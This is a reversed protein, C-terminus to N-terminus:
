EYDEHIDQHITVDMNEDILKIQEELEHAIDHSERLNLKGDLEIHFEIFNTHGCTRSRFDHYGLAESHNKIVKKVKNKIKEDIERDLLIDLASCLLERANQCLFIAILIGFISDIYTINTYKTIILSIIVGTTTFIDGTYNVSDARIALSNTKRVVYKQFTVLISTLALSSIMVSFTLSDIQITHDNVIHTIAQWGLFLASIFIFVSQFLAGISEAKGHGFRHDEDAPKISTFVAIATIITTFLDAGSDILSALVSVSGSKYYAIIKIAFMIAVFIFSAFVATKKLSTKKM